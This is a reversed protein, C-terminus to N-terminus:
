NIHFPHYMNVPKVSLGLPRRLKLVDKKASPVLDEQGVSNRPWRVKILQDPDAQITLEVIRLKSGSQAETHWTAMVSAALSDALLITLDGGAELEISLVDRDM